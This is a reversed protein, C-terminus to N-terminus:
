EEMEKIFRKPGDVIIDDFNCDYKCGIECCYGEFWKRAKEIADHYCQKRNAEDDHNIQAEKEWESKLKLLKAEDIAKQERAGISKWYYDCGAFQCRSERVHESCDICLPYRKLIEESGTNKRLAQLEKLWEALQKYEEACKSHECPKQEYHEIAEELIM